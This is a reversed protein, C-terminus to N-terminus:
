NLQFLQVALTLVYVCNALSLGKGNFALPICNNFPTPTSKTRLKAQVIIPSVASKQDDAMQKLKLTVLM